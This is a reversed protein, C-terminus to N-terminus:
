GKRSAGEVSAIVPTGCLLAEPLVGPIAEEWEIPLVPARGASCSTREELNGRARRLHHARGDILPEIERAFYAREHPLSSVNGAIQLPRNLRRAV